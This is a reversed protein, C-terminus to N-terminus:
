EKSCKTDKQPSRVIWHFAVEPDEPCNKARNQDNSLNESSTEHQEPEADARQCRCERPQDSNVADGKLKQDEGQDRDTQGCGGSCDKNIIKRALLGTSIQLAPEFSQGSFDAGHHRGSAARQM